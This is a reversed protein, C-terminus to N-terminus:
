PRGECQSTASSCSASSYVPCLVLPCIATCGEGDWEIELQELASAFSASVFVECGCGLAREVKATCANVTAQPDCMLARALLASHESRIDNCTRRADYGADKAADAAADAPAADAVVADRIASDRIAADRVAGDLGADAAAAADPAGAGDKSACGVLLVVGM